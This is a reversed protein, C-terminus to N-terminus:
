EELRGMFVDFRDDSVGGDNFWGVIRKKGCIDCPEHEVIPTATASAPLEIREYCDCYEIM